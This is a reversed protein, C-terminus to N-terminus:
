TNEHQPHPQQQATTPLHLVEKWRELLVLFTIRGFHYDTLHRYLQEYMPVESTNQAESQETMQKEM